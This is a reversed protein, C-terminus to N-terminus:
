ESLLRKEGTLERIPSIDQTVELSGMYEGNKGRVAFYRIYVFKEGMRIWFDEHDKKGTQFDQILKEVVHMSAPPHCNVVNRGIIAKTRPFIRGGAESFYRVTNDKDIFTVDVPLHNFIMGIEEVSLVGTDFRIDGGLVAQAPEEAPSSPGTIWAGPPDILCFGIGGSESAMGEWEKQELTELAMPFLINEEKFIMERVGALAKDVKEKAEMPKGNYDVLAKRAERVQARIEDQVGWMVKPPATVGHKELYPFLLIEKRSYHKELEMLRDLGRILRHINATVPNQRFAELAPELLTEMLAEMARNEMMFVQVPHGPVDGPGPGKHIDEISGKFVQAHVDCLRQIESVPMGERVLAQEMEAIESPSIGEILRSFEEKVNDVGAGEHLRLILEKLIGQRHERNNILESM